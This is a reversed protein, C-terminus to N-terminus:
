AIKLFISYYYNYSIFLIFIFFTCYYYNWSYYFVILLILINILLKLISYLELLAVVLTCHKQLGGGPTSYSRVTFLNSYELCELM